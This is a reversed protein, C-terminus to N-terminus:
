NLSQAVDKVEIVKGNEIKYLVISIGKFEEGTSYIHRYSYSVVVRNGSAIIESVEVEYSVKSNSAYVDELEKIMDVRSVPTTSNSPHFYRWKPDTVEKFVDINRENFSKFLRDIMEYNEREILEQKKLSQLELMDEKNQCGLLVFLILTLPYIIRMHKM